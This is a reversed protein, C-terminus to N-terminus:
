KIYNIWGTVIYKDQTDSPIGRHTFTWDAPWIVTLGKRPKIKIKQHYWETEGGDDVDNLYTMFVLHRSTSPFRSSIRESHWAFFGGGPKFHSILVPEITRWPSYFNCFPYLEVYQKVSESLYEYYSDLVKGNLWCDISDKIDTKIGKSTRGSFKQESNEFYELIDNCIKDNPHIWGAIFNNLSNTELTKM